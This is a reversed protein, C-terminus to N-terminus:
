VVSKRDTSVEIQPKDRGLNFGVSHLKSQISKNSFSLFSKLNLDTGIPDLNRTAKRRMAKALSDEDTSSAGDLGVGFRESRRIPTTTPAVMLPPTGSSASGGAPTPSAPAAFAQTPLPSSPASGLGM